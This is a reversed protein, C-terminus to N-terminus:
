REPSPVFGTPLNKKVMEFCKGGETRDVRESCIQGEEDLEGNIHPVQRHSGVAQRGATVRVTVSNLSVASGPELFQKERLKGQTKARLTFRSCLPHRRIIM